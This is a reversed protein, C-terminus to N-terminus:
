HLRAGLGSKTTRWVNYEVLQEVERIFAAAAPSAAQQSKLVVGITRPSNPLLRIIRLRPPPLDVAMEPVISIGLGRDVMSVITRTDEFEFTINPQVNHEKFIQKLLVDCGSKPMIFPQESIEDICVTEKASFPHNQQVIVVLEDEWLPIFDLHGPNIASFGIDIVGTSVWEEIEYYSGEFIKLEIKPYKEQFHVIIDPLKKAAFSPFCGINLIGSEVGAIAAAEQKILEVKGLIDLAHQYIKQGENTLSIGSRNRYLLTFGLEAEFASIIHSVASQTLSLMAGAKTFSGAKVVQVFIEFQQLTM